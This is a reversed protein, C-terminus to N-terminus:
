FKIITFENLNISGRSKFMLIVLSLGVAAESAALALLVIAYIYGKFDLFLTAYYIFGIGLAFFMLEFAM